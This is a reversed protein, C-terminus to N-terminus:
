KDKHLVADRAIPTVLGVECLYRVCIETFDKQTMYLGGIVPYGGKGIAGLHIVKKEALEYLSILYEHVDLQQRAGCIYAYKDTPKVLIQQAM